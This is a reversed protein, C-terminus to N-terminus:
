SKRLKRVKAKINPKLKSHEYERIATRVDELLQEDDWALKTSHDDYTTVTLHSVKVVNTIKKRKQKM